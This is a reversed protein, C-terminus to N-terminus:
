RAVVKAEYAAQAVAYEVLGEVAEKRTAIEFDGGGCEAVWSWTRRSTTYALMNHAYRHSTTAHDKYVQGVRVGDVLVDYTDTEGNGSVALDATTAKRVTTKTM